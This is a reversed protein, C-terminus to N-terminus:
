KFIECFNKEIVKPKQNRVILYNKYVNSRVTFNENSECICKLRLPIGRPVDNINNFPYCTSPMAYTFSNTPKSFIGATTKSNENIKLELDLSDLDYEDTIQMTFKIEGTSDINNLYDKFASLININHTWVSFIDHRFRKWVKPKLTYNGAKNHFHIIANDSHALLM